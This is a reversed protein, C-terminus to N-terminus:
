ILLESACTLSASWTDAECNIPETPTYGVDCTVSANTGVVYRGELINTSYQIVGNDVTGLDECTLVTSSILM